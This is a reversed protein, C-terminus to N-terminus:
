AQLLGIFESLVDDKCHEKAGTARSPAGPNGECIVLDTGVNPLRVPIARLKRPM